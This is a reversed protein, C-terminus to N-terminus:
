VEEISNRKRHEKDIYMNRDAERVTEDYSSCTFSDYVATGCSCALRYPKIGKRNFDDLKEKLRKIVLDTVATDTSNLGVLFEDGAYRATFDDQKVSNKLIHAFHILAQDGESHGYKDNVQKFNDLDMLILSFKSDPKRSQFMMWEEIQKRNNLGTLPDGTLNSLELFIYVAVIALAACNWVLLTSRTTIQLVAGILPLGTFFLNAIIIDRDAKKRNIITLIVPAYIILFLYSTFIIIGSLDTRYNNEETIRYIWGTKLNVTLMAIGPLILIGYYRRRKLRAASKFIQFDIYNFWLLPVLLNSLYFIYKLTIHFQRHLPGSSGDFYWSSIELALLLIMSFTLHLFWRNSISFHQKRYFMNLTLVALLSIFLYHATFEYQHYM